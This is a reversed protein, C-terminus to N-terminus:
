IIDYMVCLPIRGAGDDVTDHSLCLFRFGAKSSVLYFPVLLPVNMIYAISYHYSYTSSDTCYLRLELANAISNSWEQM